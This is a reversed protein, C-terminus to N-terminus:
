VPSWATPQFDESPEDTFGTKSEEPPEPLLTNHRVTRCWPYGVDNMVNSLRAVALATILFGGIGWPLLLVALLAAAATWPALCFMCRALEGLLGPLMEVRSRLGAAISSHHFIELIEWVALATLVAESFSWM